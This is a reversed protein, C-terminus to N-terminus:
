EPLKQVWKIHGLQSLLLFIRSMIYEDFHLVVINNQHVAQIVEARIAVAEEFGVIILEIGIELLIIHEALLIGDVFQREEWIHSDFYVIIVLEIDRGDRAPM